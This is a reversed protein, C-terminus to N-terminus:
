SAKLLKPIFAEVKKLMFPNKSYKNNLYEILHDKKYINKLWHRFYKLEENDYCKVERTGRRDSFIYDYTSVNDEDAWLKDKRFNSWRKGISGDILDFECQSGVNAEVAIMVPHSENFICFHTDPCNRAEDNIIRKSYVELLPKPTAELKLLAEMRNFEAIFEEKFRQAAAGNFSMVLRTFGDRTITFSTNVRKQSNVYSSEKFNLLRFERSIELNAIAQMVNDHRKDFKEAILLSTTTVQENYKIVLQQM